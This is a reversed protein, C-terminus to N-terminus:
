STNKMCRVGSVKIEEATRIEYCWLWRKWSGSHQYIADQIAQMVQAQTGEQRFESPIEAANMTSKKSKRGLSKGKRFIPRGPWAFKVLVTYQRGGNQLCLFCSNTHPVDNGDAPGVAEERRESANLKATQTTVVADQGCIPTGSRLVCTKAGSPTPFTDQSADDEPYERRRRRSQALTVRSHKARVITNKPYIRTPQRLPPLAAQNSAVSLGSVHPQALTLRNERHPPSSPMNCSIFADNM